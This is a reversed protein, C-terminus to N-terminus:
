VNLYHMLADFNDKLQEDSTKDAEFYSNVTYGFRNFSALIREINSTEVKIMVELMNDDIDNDGIFVGWIKSNESEIIRSIESFSYDGIAVQLLILGGESKFTLLSSFERFISIKDVIGYFQNNEDVVFKISNKDNSFENIVSFINIDPHIFLNREPFTLKNKLEEIGLKDVSPLNEIVGLFENDKIVPIMDFGHNAINLSYSDISDSLELVEYTDSIFDIAKLKM